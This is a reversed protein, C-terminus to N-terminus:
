AVNPLADPAAFRTRLAVVLASVPGTWDNPRTQRFITMAPYWSTDSRGPLWRWCNDYRDLMFVPKAMTGALHVIATDVSVVADLDAVIAATDAFDRVAPMPDDLGPLPPPSRAPAGTQLSVWRVGRLVALPALVAPAVSRRADLGTFGPLWPRAQGAWVIGIRPVPRHPPAPVRLYDGPPITEPTTRFARPLSVMPCHYDYRPLPADEPLVTAIGPMRQALRELPKPMRAIVTAGREALLPVYRLFQITDGFGEEHTLLVTRGHLDADPPLLRDEPLGQYGPLRLRWDGQNWAEAWRGAHLLAIMRNLRITPDDPSRQIAADYAALAEDCRGEIKLVMGLNAWALAPAPDLRIANRFHQAADRFKGQEAAALGLLHAAAATDAADRLVDEARGPLDHDLLWDAFARRLRADAPARDLCAQFLSAVPGDPCLRVFDLCPHAHDPRERALANLGIAAEDIVGTAAQALSILLRADADDQPLCRCVAIAARWLRADMAELATGLLRRREETDM